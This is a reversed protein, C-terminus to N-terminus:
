ATGGETADALAALVERVTEETETFQVSRIGLEVAAECNEETDDVFLLQGPRAGLRDLLIQYIERDPKRVGEKHSDVVLEFLEDVPLQARWRPEWEQCNNTLLALRYGDARLTRLFDVFEENPTRGRFWLEGFPQQDLISDVGPPLEAVIRDVMQRETIAGIELAAMPTEGHRETAELYAGLLTEVELGALEAFAAFTEILPNTLVGGYDVVVTDITM